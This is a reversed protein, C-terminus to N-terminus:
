RRAGPLLAADKEKRAPRQVPPRAKPSAKHDLLDDWNDLTPAPKDAADIPTATLNGEHTFEIKMSVGAAKAARLIRTV